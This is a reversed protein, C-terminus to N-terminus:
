RREFTSRGELWGPPTKTATEYGLKQFELNEGKSMLQGNEASLSGTPEPQERDVAQEPDPEVSQPGATQLHHDQDLRCRHDLPM